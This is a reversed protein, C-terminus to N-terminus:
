LALSMLLPLGVKVADIAGSVLQPTIENQILNKGYDKLGTYVGTLWRKIEDRHDPNCCPNYYQRLLGVALEFGPEKGHMSPPVIGLLKSTSFVGEVNVHCQIYNPPAGGNITVSNDVVFVMNYSTFTSPAFFPSINTVDSEFIQNVSPVFIQYGGCRAHGKFAWHSRQSVWDDLTVGAPPFLIQTISAGYIYGSDNIASSDNGVLFSMANFVGEGILGGAAISVLQPFIKSDYTDEGNNFVLPVPQTIVGTDSFSFTILQPDFSANGNPFNFVINTITTVTDAIGITVNQGGGPINGGTGAISFNTDTIDGSVVHTSLDSNTYSISYTGNLFAPPLSAVLTLGTNGAVGQVVTSWGSAGNTNTIFIGDSVPNGNPSPEIISTVSIRGDLFRQRVMKPAFWMDPAGLNFYTLTTTTGYQSIGRSAFAQYKGFPTAILRTIGNSLGLAKWPTYLCKIQSEPSRGPTPVAKAMGPDCFMHITEAITGTLLNGYGKIPTENRQASERNIKEIQKKMAMLESKYDTKTNTPVEINKNPKYQMEAPMYRDQRVVKMQNLAQDYAIDRNYDVPQYPAVQKLMKELNVIKKKEASDKKKLNRNQRKLKSNKAQQQNNNNNEM